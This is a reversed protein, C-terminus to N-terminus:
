KWKEGFLFDFSDPVFRSSVGGPYPTLESFFIRNGVNYLDVRLFDFGESLSEAVRVMDDFSHPLDIRGKYQRLGLEVLDLENTARDFFKESHDYFRDFDIKFFEM